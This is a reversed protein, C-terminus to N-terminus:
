VVFAESLFNGILTLGAEQSKEPHFQTAVLHGRRIMSVFPGGYDTVGAHLSEDMPEPYFSHVFYFHTTAPLGAWVPDGPDSITVENWGMHPVKLDGEPFRVVSGEFVGLGKADPSEEGEAFLLQYGICIGFFPRDAKIWAVLPDRLGRADLEKMSDGFAGVGPFILRDVGEVESEEAVFRPDHGLKRVANAVSSLNGAGYDVLGVQM